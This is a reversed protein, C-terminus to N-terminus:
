GYWSKRVALPFQLLNTEAALVRRTQLLFAECQATSRTSYENGSTWAHQWANETFSEALRCVLHSFRGEDHPIWNLPLKSRAEFSRREPRIPRFSQYYHVHWLNSFILVKGLPIQCAHRDSPAKLGRQRVPRKHRPQMWYSSFEGSYQPVPLKTQNRPVGVLALPSHRSPAVPANPFSPVEVYRLRPRLVRIRGFDHSSDERVGVIQVVPFVRCIPILVRLSPQSNFGPIATAPKLNECRVVQALRVVSESLECQFNWDARARCM